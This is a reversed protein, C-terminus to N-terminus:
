YIPQQLALCLCSFFYWINLNRYKFQCLLQNRILKTMSVCELQLYYNSSVTFAFLYKLSRCFLSSASKKGSSKPEYFGPDIHKDFVRVEALKEEKELLVNLLHKGLFGCGGTILYVLTRSSESMTFPVGRLSSSESILEAPLLATNISFPAPSACDFFAVCKNPLLFSFVPTAMVVFTYSNNIHFM